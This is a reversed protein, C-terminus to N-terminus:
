RNYEPWEEAAATDASATGAEWETLENLYEAWGTPDDTQLRQYAAEIDAWRQEAELHETVQALLAGM